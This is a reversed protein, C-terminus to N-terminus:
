EIITDDGIEYSLPEGRGTFHYRVRKTYRRKPPGYALDIDNLNKMAKAEDPIILLEGWQLSRRLGEYIQRINTEIQRGERGQVRDPERRIIAPPETYATTIAM